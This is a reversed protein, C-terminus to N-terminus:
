VNNWEGIMRKLEDYKSILKEYENRTLKVKNMYKSDSYFHQSFVNYAIAAEKETEFRKMLKVGDKVCAAEWNNRKKNYSVGKYKSSSNKHSRTNHSNFSRTVWRCNNKCYSKNNNIRDLEHNKTPPDGMDRYFSEFSNWDNCFSIGRGGYRFYNKNNKNTCRDKMDQWARYVKSNTKGHTKM